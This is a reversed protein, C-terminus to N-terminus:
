RTDTTRAPTAEEQRIAELARRLTDPDQAGSILHAGDVVFAPVGRLGYAAAQDLDAQVDAAADPDVHLEVGADAALRRLTGPDAVNAGETFYALFLREVLRDQAEAGEARWAGAVAAHARRTNVRQALDFRYDIGEEAGLATIRQTMQEFTGPGYKAELTARLDGPEEAATPDLQYARWRVEIEGAWDLQASARELRRKGLYCWPCVIDSWIDIHM